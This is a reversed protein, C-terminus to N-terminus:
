LNGVIAILGARPSPKRLVQELELMPDSLWASRTCLSHESHQEKSNSRVADCASLCGPRTAPLARRRSRFVGPGQSRSMTPPAFNRCRLYDEAVRDRHSRGARHRHRRQTNRHRCLATSHRARRAQDAAIFTGTDRDSNAKRGTLFCDLWRARKRIQQFGRIARATKRGSGCLGCLTKNIWDSVAKTKTADDAM